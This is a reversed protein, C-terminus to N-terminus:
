SWLAKVQERSLDLRRETEERLREWRKLRQRERYCPGYCRTGPHLYPKDVKCQEEMGRGRLGVELLAEQHDSYAEVFGTEVADRMDTDMGLGKGERQLM